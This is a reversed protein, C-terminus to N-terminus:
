YPFSLLDVNLLFSFDLAHSFAIAFILLGLVVAFLMFRWELFLKEPSQAVSEKKLGIALYWSFLVALLPLVLILEVRYKVMFVGLFLLCTGSFFHIAVMLREENYFRFSTRYRGAVGPDAIFRYEALRKVAMLFAGGLWFIMLLSSPPLVTPAVVAWGFALRIANNISESLIDVYAREKLRVPPVNYALGSLAFVVAIFVFMHSLAASLAMGLSLLLLYEATALWRPLDGRAFPRQCKVPHARDFEADLAENIVYNASAILSVALLAAVLTLPDPMQKSLAMAAVVGPLVFINKLWYGPRAVDVCARLLSVATM